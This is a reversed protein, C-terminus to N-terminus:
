NAAEQLKLPKALILNMGFTFTGTTPDETIQADLKVDKFLPSQKLESDLLYAIQGNAGPNISNIDVGRCTIKVSSVRNSNSATDEAPLAANPDGEVPPPPPAAAQEAMQPMYRRRFAEDMERDGYRVPVVPSGGPVGGISSSADLSGGLATFSSMTEVWVGTDTGFKLKGETETRLLADRLERAIDTWTFREELWGAYQDL